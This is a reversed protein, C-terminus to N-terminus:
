NSWGSGTHRELEALKIMADAAAREMALEFELATEHARVLADFGVKGARYDEETASLAQEAAPVLRDRYLAKLRTLDHLDVLTSELVSTLVAATHFRRREVGSLTAEAERVRARNQGLWLPVNISAVGVLPDKGSDEVHPGAEGTEIYDIGLTLDPLFSRASRSRELRAAEIEFDLVGLDPSSAAFRSRAESDSPLEVAPLFEAIELDGRPEIGVAAALRVSAASLRDDISALENEVRALAIQANMLDGYSNVGAAYSERVVGELGALLVAREGVIESAKRLYYYDAYASTVALAVDLESARAREAEVSARAVAARKTLGLKGFLPLRQRVGIRRTQPGVRTEVEEFYHGYSLTPDPLGGMHRSREVAATHRAEASALLPSLKRALSLYYELTGPEHEHSGQPGASGVREEQAAPNPSYADPGTIQAGGPAHFVLVLAACVLSM